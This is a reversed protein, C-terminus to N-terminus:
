RERGGEGVGEREEERGRWRGGERDVQEGEESREREVEGGEGSSDATKEESRM